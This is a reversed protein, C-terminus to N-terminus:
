SKENKRIEQKLLKYDLESVKKGTSFNLTRPIQDKKSFKLESSNLKQLISKLVKPTNNCLDEYEIFIFKENSLRKFASEINLQIDELQNVIDKYFPLGPNDRMSTTIVSWQYNKNKHLSIRANLISQANDLKDRNMVIFTSNEFIDSLIEIRMSNVVNKFLLPQKYIKTIAAIEMKLNKIFKQNKNQLNHNKSFYKYWFQGFENPGYHYRSRGFNSNLEIENKSQFFLSHAKAALIPINYWDAIFNNIYSFNTHKCLLQYLVTTGSRPPGIIFVPPNLDLYKLDEKNLLNKQLPGSIYNIPKLLANKIKLVYSKIFYNLSTM